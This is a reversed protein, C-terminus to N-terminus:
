AKPRGAYFAAHKVTETIEKATVGNKKATELHRLFSSGAPEQKMRAAVTVISRDRLLLLQSLSWAEGSPVGDNLQAFKPALAGLADRGATQKM